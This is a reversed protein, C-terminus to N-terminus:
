GQNPSDDDMVVTSVLTGFLLVGGFVAVALSTCLLVEQGLTMANHEVNVNISQSDGSLRLQSYL